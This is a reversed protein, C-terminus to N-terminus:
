WIKFIRCSIRVQMPDKAHSLFMRCEQLLQDKERLLQLRPLQLQVNSYLQEEQYGNSNYSCQQYDGLPQQLSMNSGGADTSVTNISSALSSAAVVNGTSAASATNDHLRNHPQLYPHPTSSALVYSNRDSTNHHHHTVTNDLTSNELTSILTTSATSNASTLNNALSTGTTAPTTYTNSALTTFTTSALRQDLAALQHQYGRLQSKASNYELRLRTLEALRAGLPM